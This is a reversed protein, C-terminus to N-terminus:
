LTNGGIVRKKALAGSLGAPLSHISSRAILDHVAKKGNHLLIINAAICLSFFPTLDHKNGIIFLSFPGIIAVLCFLKLMNRMLATGVSLQTGDSASVVLRGLRKGLTGRYGSSEFWTGYVAFAILLVPSAWQLLSKKIVNDTIGIATAISVLVVIVAGVAMFIVVLDVMVAWVRRVLLQDKKKNFIATIYKKKRLPTTKERTKQAKRLPAVFVLYIIGGMTYLTILEGM